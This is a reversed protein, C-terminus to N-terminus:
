HPNLQALIENIQLSQRCLGRFCAKSEHLGALIKMPYNQKIAASNEPANLLLKRSIRIGSLFPRSWKFQNGNVLPQLWLLLAILIIIRM